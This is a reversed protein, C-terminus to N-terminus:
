PMPRLVAFAIRAGPVAHRVVPIRRTSLRKELREPWSQGVGLGVGATVSDGLCLIFDGEPPAASPGYLRPLLALGGEVLLLFLIFVGVSYLAKRPASLSRAM